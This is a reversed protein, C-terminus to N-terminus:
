TVYIPGQDFRWQGAKARENAHSQAGPRMGDASLASGVQSTLGVVRSKREARRASAPAHSLLDYTWRGTMAAPADTARAAACALWPGTALRARPRAGPSQAGARAPAGLSEDPM